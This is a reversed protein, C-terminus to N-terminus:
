CITRRFMRRLLTERGQFHIASRGFVQRLSHLHLVRSALPRKQLDSWRDHHDLLVLCYLDRTPILMTITTKMVKTCKVCRTAFKEEYCGSCYIDQERPIFSKTGIPTKCVFCSFCKEHWQRSKYEM